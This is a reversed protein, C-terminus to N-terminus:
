FCDTVLPRRAWRKANKSRRRIEVIARGERQFFHDSKAGRLASSTCTIVSELLRRSRIRNKFLM